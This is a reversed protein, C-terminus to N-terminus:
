ITKNLIKVDHETKLHRRLNTLYKFQKSCVECEYVQDGHKAAQHRKMDYKRKYVHDCENCEHPYPKCVVKTADVRIEINHVEAIHRRM